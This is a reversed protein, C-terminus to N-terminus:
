VMRLVRRKGLAPPLGRERERGHMREMGGWVTHGSDGDHRGGVKTQTTTGEMKRNPPGANEMRQSSSRTGEVERHTSGLFLSRWVSEM